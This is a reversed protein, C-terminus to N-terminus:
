KKWTLGLGITAASMIAMTLWGLIRLGAPLTLDGMVKRNISLMMLVGLVPVCVIGNLVATWYLAQIINFRFFNLALGVLLSVTLLAYFGKAQKPKRQLSV